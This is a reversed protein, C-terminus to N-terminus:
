AAGATTGAATRALRRRFRYLVTAGVVGAAGLAVATGTGNGDAPLVTTPPCVTAYQVYYSYRLTQGNLVWRADQYFIESHTLLVRWTGHVTGTAFQKPQQGQLRTPYVQNATGYNYIQQRGTTNNYGLVVWYTGDGNDRYCDVIPSVTGTASATGPSFIMTLAAIIGIAGLRAFRAGTRSGTKRSTGAM